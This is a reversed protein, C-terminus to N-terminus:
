SAFFYVFYPFSGFHKAIFIATKLVKLFQSCFNFPVPVSGDCDGYIIFLVSLTKYRARSTHLVM